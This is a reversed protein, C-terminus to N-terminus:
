HVSSIVMFYSTSTQVITSFSELCFIFAKGATLYCPQLSRRIVLLILRHIEIPAEYWLGSYAKICIDSSYDIIKQGPYCMCFIHVLQAAAFAIYRFAESSKKLVILIQYLSLSMCVLSSGVQFLLFFSYSSEILEAFELARKHIEITRIVHEFCMRRSRHDLLTTLDTQSKLLHELRFGVATFIGCVHSNFVLLLIDASILVTIGIVIVISMHFYIPFFHQDEDIFYESKFIPRLPRSDNLPVIVDMICPFFPMLLFLTMCSYIYSTYLFTLLQGEESYERMIDIEEKSEWLKWHKIIREFLNKINNRSIYFMSYKSTITILSTIPPIIEILTDVNGNTYLLSIQTVGFSILLSIVFCMRFVRDFKDQYPWQGVLLLLRRNLRYYPHEFVEM